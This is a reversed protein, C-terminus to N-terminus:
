IKINEWDMDHGNNETTHKSIVNHVSPDKKINDAHENKWIELLRKSQGLYNM